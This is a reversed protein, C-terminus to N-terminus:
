TERDRKAADRLAQGWASDGNAKKAVSLKRKRNVIRLLTDDQTKKAVGEVVSLAELFADETCIGGWAIDKSDSPAEM